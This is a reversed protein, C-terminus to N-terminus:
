DAAPGVITSVRYEPDSLVALVDPDDVAFLVRRGNLWPTPHWTLYLAALGPYRRMDREFGPVFGDPRFRKNPIRAVGGPPVANAHAQIVALAALTDRRTDDHHDLRLPVLVLGIWVAVAGARLVGTRLHRPVVAARPAAVLAVALGILATALYHYRGFMIGTVDGRQRFIAYMPGRGVAIAAYAVLILLVVAGLRRADRPNTVFGALVVLLTAIAATFAVSGPYIPDRTFPALAFSASGIELLHGFFAPATLLVMNGAASPTNLGMAVFGPLVLGIWTAGLVAPVGLLALRRKWDLRDSPLLLLAAVPFALAVATGIAFSTGAVLQLVCWAILRWWPVLGPITAQQAVSGLTLLICTTAMVQGYVSFWGLADELVSATGWVTAVVAALRPANTLRYAVNWLLAVNLVHTLLVALGWRTADMGFAAYFVAQVAQWSTVLHGGFPTVLQQILEGNALHYLHLFDDGHFFTRRLGAYAIASLVVPYAVAEVAAFSRERAAEM